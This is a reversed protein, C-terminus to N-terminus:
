KILMEETRNHVIQFSVKDNVEFGGFALSVYWTSAVGANKAADVVNQHQTNRQKIDFSPSSVFFLNKVGQLASEITAPRDYDLERWQLGQSEFKQRYRDSRTTVVIKSAPVRHKNLMENLVTAGLGGTVGTLLYEVKSTMIPPTHAPTISADFLSKSAM